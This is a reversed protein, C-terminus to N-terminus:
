PTILIEIKVTERQRALWDRVAQERVQELAISTLPRIGRELSEVIHYGLRSEVVESIEGPQLAFAAEEVEPITLYGRPFWGLDGGAPRTSLDLSVTRAANDFDAGALLRDRLAVAEERSAVLIHRAHVQEADGTTSDVIQQIMRAALMEELLSEEFDELSYGNSALWANLGDSGGREETLGGIRNELTEPDIEVGSARAGQALLRRDIMAELVQNRYDGLTALDIGLATQASEFRKVEAEFTELWIPDGNVRAAIPKPTSTPPALTASPTTGTVELPPSASGRCGALSLFGVILGALLAIHRTM